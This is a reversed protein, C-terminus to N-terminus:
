SGDPKLALKIGYNSTTKTQIQFLNTEIASRKQKSATTPAKESFAGIVAFTLNKAIYGLATNFCCLVKLRLSEVLIQVNRMIEQSLFYNIEFRFVNTCNIPKYFTIKNM